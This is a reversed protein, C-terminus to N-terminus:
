SEPTTSKQQASEIAATMWDPTDSAPFVETNDTFDTGDAFDAAVEIGDVEASALHAPYWFELDNARALEERTQIWVQALERSEEASPAKSAAGGALYAQLGSPSWVASWVLAVLLSAASGVAMWSLRRTWVSSQSRAVTVPVLSEASVVAQTLEVARALAERASQDQALLEEFAAAEAPSLEGAAYCFASWELQNEPQTNM